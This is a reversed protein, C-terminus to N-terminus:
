NQGSEFADRIILEMRSYDKNSAMQVAYIYEKFRVNRIKELSLFNYGAKLAMLNALLRAVRGNGERFPHIFLFEAHVKSIDKILAEKDAYSDPLPSLFENEFDKMAEPLFRSAPFLFGGKSVNVTRLKGAFSYLHKLAQYHMDLIFATTFRTKDTLNDVFQYQVRLFGKFEQKDIEEKVTIGLLNPLIEHEGEEYGTKYKDNAVDM